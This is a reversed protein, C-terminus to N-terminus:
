LDLVLREGRCRSVCILMIDGAERESDSLTSDRHEPEGSLVPTECSGCTGQRCSPTTPVGAEEVADLISMDAAIRLVKGTRALEVEFEEGPEQPAATFREVHLSLGRAAADPLAAFREELAALLPEPGCCYVSTGADLAALAADLDLLGFEDQPRPEVRDGYAALEDLYAMSTRTRGGYLLRWDAGAAEAAGIMPLLPTIGIGGAVFLHATGAAFPFDNRPGRATLVDGVAVQEHLLASGGRSEPERLVAVRWRERDAVDGCLSYQRLLTRGGDQPLLLEVHAGPAWAPLPSGDVARLEFAAIGAAPETRATVILRLEGLVPATSAPAASEEGRPRRRAGGKLIRM